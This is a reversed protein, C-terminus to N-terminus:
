SRDKDRQSKKYAFIKSRDGTKEAERELRELHVDSRSVGSKAGTVTKEPQTGPKRTKAKMDLELQTMKKTFLVPDAIGALEKARTPNKSLVYLLKASDDAAHIMIGRQADNFVDSAFEEASDYDAVKLAKARDKHAILKDNWEKLANEQQQRQNKEAEELKRKSDLYAIMKEDYKDQDYDIDDDSMQPKQIVAPSSQQQSGQKLQELERKMEKIVKVHERDRQRLTKIVPTDNAPEDKIENEEGLTIEDEVEESEESESEDDEVENEDPLDQNDDASEDPLLLEDEVEGNNNENEYDVESM